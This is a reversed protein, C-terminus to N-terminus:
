RKIYTQKGELSILRDRRVFFMEKVKGSTFDNLTLVASVGDVITMDTESMAKRTKETIDTSQWKYSSTTIGDNLEALGDKHLTLISNGQSDYYVNPLSEQQRGCGILLLITSFYLAYRM